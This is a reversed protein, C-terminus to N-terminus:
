PEWPTMADWDVPHGETHDGLTFVDGMPFPVPELADLGGIRNQFENEDAIWVHRADWSWLRRVLGAGVCDRVVVLTGQGDTSM